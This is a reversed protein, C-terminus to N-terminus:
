FAAGITLHFAIRTDPDPNAHGLASTEALRNLRVGVGTRIAGIPTEYALSGGVATHLAAELEGFSELNDGADVFPVLNVWYGFLRFVRLRLELSLLLSANGGLAVRQGTAQDLVQPSLRGYSFGRHSNPGGLYFRRTIPSDLERFPHLWGLSARAAVTLRGGLPLYGRLDLAIKFYDFDSAVARFGEELRLEAYVGRRADLASDRLDLVALQELWALRYPDKFGLGLPTTLPDFAGSEVSFFDYFTFNWSAAVRLRDWALLRELGVRTRPGHYRYAQEFGLDYGVAGVATLQTRFLYPQVLEAESEIAVGSRQLDWVTPIAVLSPKLRLSLTRLGGLFNRLSWDVLLRAEQRQREIGLGGGLRLRRLKAPTLKVLVPPRARPPDPLSVAVTSFVGMRYIRRELLSLEDPYYRTGPRWPIALAITPAPIPENGELELEGLEVEPGPVAPLIVAARARVREVRLEGTSSAYGHGLERLRATLAAKAAQYRAYVLPDGVAVGLARPLTDRERALAAPLGELEVRAVHTRPGEAIRLEVEVAGKALPKVEARANASFFGHEAYLREIRRLDVDLAGPDLPQRSAWPLWSTAATALGETLEAADLAHNGTVRIRKVWREPPAAGGCSALWCALALAVASTSSTTPIM